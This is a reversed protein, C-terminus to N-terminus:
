RNIVGKSTGWSAGQAEEVRAQNSQAARCEWPLPGPWQSGLWPRPQELSGGGVDGFKGGRVTWACVIGPTGHHPRGVALSDGFDVRDHGVESQLGARHAAEAAAAAAAANALDRVRFTHGM